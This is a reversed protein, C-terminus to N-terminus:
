KSSQDNQQGQTQILSGDTIHTMIRSQYTDNFWVRQRDFLEVKGGPLLGIVEWLNDGKDKWVSGMQIPNPTKM